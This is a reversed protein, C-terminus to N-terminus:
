PLNSPGCEEPEWRIRVEEFRALLESEEGVWFVISFNNAYGSALEIFQKSEGEYDIISRARGDEFKVGLIYRGSDPLDEVLKNTRENRSLPSHTNTSRAELPLEAEIFRGLWISIVEPSKQPHDVTLGIWGKGNIQLDTVELYVERVKCDSEYQVLTLGDQWPELSSFVLSADEAFAVKVSDENDLLLCGEMTVYPTRPTPLAIRDWKRRDICEDFAEYVAPLVRTPTLTASANSTSGEADAVAISVTSTPTPVTETLTPEGSLANWIGEIFSGVDQYFSRGTAQQYANNGFLFVVILLAIPIAPAIRRALHALKTRRFKRSAAEAEATFGNTIPPLTGPFSPRDQLSPQLEGPFGPPESPKARGLLVGKLLEDRAESEQKDVLDIHIIPLLLGRVDVERVRVPLLMGKEGTPDQAFAAAWEPHAFNASIYDPSLVAITREAQEAARQMELVFNSGPRFDWAELVTSYGATELEWAIWGAWTQDARNYSIFFDRKNM